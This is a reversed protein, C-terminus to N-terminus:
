NAKFLELFTEDSSLLKAGETFADAFSGGESRKKVPRNDDTWNAVSKKMEGVEELTLGFVRKETMMKVEMVTEEWSYDYVLNYWTYSSV